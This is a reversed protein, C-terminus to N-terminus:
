GSVCMSTMKGHLFLLAGGGGGDESMFSDGQGQVRLWGKM